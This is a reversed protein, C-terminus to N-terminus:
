EEDDISKSALYDTLLYVWIIGLVMISFIRITEGNVVIM